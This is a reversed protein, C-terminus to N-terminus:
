VNFEIYASYFILNGRNKDNKQNYLSEIAKNYQDIMYAAEPHNPDIRAIAKIIMAIEEQLSM